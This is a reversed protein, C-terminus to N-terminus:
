QGDAEDVIELTGGQEICFVSAPNAIQTASTTTTVDTPGSSCGVLLLATGLSAIIRVNM